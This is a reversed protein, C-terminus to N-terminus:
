RVTRLRWRWRTHPGPGLCGLEAKVGRVAVGREPVAVSESQCSGRPCLWKHSFLFCSVIQEQNNLKLLTPDPMPEQIVPLCCFRTGILCNGAESELGAGAFPVGAGWTLCRSDQGDAHDTLSLRDRGGRLGKAM